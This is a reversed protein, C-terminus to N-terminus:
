ASPCGLGPPPGRLTRFDAFVSSAAPPSRVERARDPALASKLLEEFPAWAADSRAADRVRRLDSVADIDSIPPLVRVRVSRSLLAGRIREFLAADRRGVTRLLDRHAPPLGILYLGGDGAPGLAATAPSSELAAFAAEIEAPAPAPCDGGAILLTGAGLRLAEEASEALRDGFSGEAQLRVEPNWRGLLAELRNRCSAPGAVILRAGSHRAAEAWSVALASFLASAGSGPIGKARAEGEPSRAFLLLARGSTM